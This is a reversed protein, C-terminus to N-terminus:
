APPFHYSASPDHYAERPVKFRIGNNYYNQNGDSALLRVPSPIHERNHRGVVVKEVAGGWPRVRIVAQGGSQGRRQLLRILSCRGPHPRGTVLFM